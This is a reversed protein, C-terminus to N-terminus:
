SAQATSNARESDLDRDWLDERNKGPSGAVASGVVAVVGIGVGTGIMSGWAPSIWLGAAVCGLLWGFVALFAGVARVIKNADRWDPLWGSCPSPGGKAKPDYVADDQPGSADEWPEFSNDRKCRLGCESCQYFRHGFSICGVYRLECGGCGPCRVGFTLPIIVLKVFMYPLSFLASISGGVLITVVTGYTYIAALACVLLAAAVVRFLSSGKQTFHM